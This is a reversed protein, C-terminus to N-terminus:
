PRVRRATTAAVPESPASTGKRGKARVRFEWAKGPALGKVTVTTRGAPVTAARVFRGGPGKKEVVFGTEQSSNDTWELTVSTRTVATVTLGSPAALAGRPATGYLVALGARDDRELAPGRGDSSITSRMVALMKEESDCPGSLDDGCSHGLGLTHGLEHTFLRAAFTRGSPETREYACSGGDQTVVDGEGIPYHSEGNWGRPVRAAYWFVAYALLGGTACDFQGPLERNPDDFLFANVGDPRALGTPATTTGAYTYRVATAPDDNWAELAARIEDVGGGPLGSQGGRHSRWAVSGGTDFTFWRSSLRTVPDLILTHKGRAPVAVGTVEYDAPAAFGAARAAIWDAFLDLDRVPEERADGLAAAESLDRLALRHGKAEVAHFAGLMLHLPGWTGDAGPALFLLVREGEAFRPAGPAWMGVGDPREGGPVRVTLTEDAEGKLVREVRVAADTAAFASEEPALGVTEVTGTVILPAQDVLATDAMPVYTAAGAPLAALLLTPIMWRPM